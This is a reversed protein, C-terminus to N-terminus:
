NTQALQDVALQTKTQSGRTDLVRRQYSDMIVGSAM